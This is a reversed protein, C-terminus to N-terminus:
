TSAIGGGGGLFLLFRFSPVYNCPVHEGHTVMQGFCDLISTCIWYRFDQMKFILYNTTNLFIVYGNLM